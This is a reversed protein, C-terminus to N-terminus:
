NAVQKGAIQRIAARVPTRGHDLNRVCFQFLFEPALNLIIAGVTLTSPTRILKIRAGAIVGCRNIWVIINFTHKYELALQESALKTTGYLSVPAATSFEITLGNAPAGAFPQAAENWAFTNNNKILPLAALEPISYVRSTSLLIM